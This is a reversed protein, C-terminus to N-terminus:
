TRGPGHAGPGQTLRQHPQGANRPHPPRVAPRGDCFGRFAVGIGKRRMGGCAEASQRDGLPPKADALVQVGPGSM